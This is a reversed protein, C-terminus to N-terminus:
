LNYIHINSTYAGFELPARSLRAFNDVYAFVKFSCKDTFTDLFIDAVKFYSVVFGQDTTLTKMLAM